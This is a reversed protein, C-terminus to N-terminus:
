FNKLCTLVSLHTNVRRVEIGSGLINNEAWKEYPDLDRGVILKVSFGLDLACLGLQLRHTYFYMANNSVFTVNKM